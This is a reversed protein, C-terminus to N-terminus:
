GHTLVPPQPTFHLFIIFHLFILKKLVNMSACVSLLFSFNLALLSRFDLKLEAGLPGFM